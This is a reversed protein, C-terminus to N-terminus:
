NERQLRYYVRLKWQKFDCRMLSLKMFLILLQQQDLEIM